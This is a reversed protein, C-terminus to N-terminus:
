LFKTMLVVNGKESYVVEDMISHVLMVGFGGPRKGAAASAQLHGYLDAAPDPLSHPKFGEGEDEFKLIVRDQFYCYSIRVRKEHDLRNGWEIANRGAEEMAVRLDECIERPLCTSFLAESFRQLRQLYEFASPTTLEVWGTMPHRVHIEGPKVPRRIQRRIARELAIRVEESTFPKQLFDVAGKDLCRIVADESRNGSVIVVALHPTRQHVWDLIKEGSGDPLKLDLLLADLRSSETELIALAESVCSATTVQYGELMSRLLLLIAPEDDVVLVRLSPAAKGPDLAAPLPEHPM